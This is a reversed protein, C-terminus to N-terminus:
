ESQSPGISRKRSRGRRYRLRADTVALVQDGLADQAARLVLTSDVGGSFAVVVRECEQLIHKLRVLATMLDGAWLIRTTAPM